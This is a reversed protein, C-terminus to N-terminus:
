ANGFAAQTADIEENIAQWQPEVNDADLGLQQFSHLNDRDVQGLPHDTGAFHQIVAVQVIDTFDVQESKRTLDQYQKPVRVLEDSFDWSKLIYAGIHPHLREIVHDLSMSDSMLGENNEAYALIPLVGIQHVLGALLARDSPLKTFHRALVQASSAIEIARSWCARMRVDIADNTAQFMQAMALGIVLNSTYDIGLRSVATTLDNIAISSRLMPSNAIRLLRATLAPDQGIISSIDNITADEDEAVERIKLAIEPLTPLVLRDERIQQVIDDKVQQVLSQSM